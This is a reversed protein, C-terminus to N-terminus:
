DVVIRGWLGKRVPGPVATSPDTFWTLRRKYILAQHPLSAIGIIGTTFPDKYMKSKIIPDDIKMVSSVLEFDYCGTYDIMQNFDLLKFIQDGIDIVGITSYHITGARINSEYRGMIPSGNSGDTRILYVDKLKNAGECVAIQASKVTNWNASASHNSLGMIYFKANPFGLKSRFRNTRLSRLNSEYAHAESTSNADSEGQGWYIGVLKPKKGSILIDLIAPKYVFNM